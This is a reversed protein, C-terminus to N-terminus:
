TSGAKASHERLGNLNDLGWCAVAMREAMDSFSKGALEQAGVRLAEREKNYQRALHRLSAAAELDIPDAHLIERAQLTKDIESM